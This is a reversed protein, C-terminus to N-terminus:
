GLSRTVRALVQPRPHGDVRHGRRARLRVRGHAHAARALAALAAAVGVRAGLWGRAAPDLRAQRVHWDWFRHGLAAAQRPGVRGGGGRRAAARRRPSCLGKRLRPREAAAGRRGAADARGHGEMRAGRAGPVARVGVGGRRRLRLREHVHQLRRRHRAGLRLLWDAARLVARAPLRRALTGGQPGADPRGGADRWGRRHRRRGPEDRPPGPRPRCVCDALAQRPREGARPRDPRARARRARRPPLLPLDLRPAAVRPDFLATGRDRRLAAGVRGARGAVLPRPRAALSSCGRASRRRRGRGGGRRRRRRSRRRRRRRRGRRSRRRRRRARRVPRGLRLAPAADPVTEGDPRRAVLAGGVGDAGDRGLAAVGAGWGGVLQDGRGAAAARRM